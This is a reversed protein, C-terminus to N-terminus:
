RNILYEPSSMLLYIALQARFELDEQDNAPFKKLAEIIIQTSNESLRGQALILNLRDMLMHLNDDSALAIEDVIDIRAVEDSYTSDVEGSYLDYADVLREEMIFRYLGNIYGVITQADTIQFVPAVKNAEEIKGIPQYDQQFFNFVTPASLPKQGTFDYIYRMDNRYNGSPTSADFAKNLQVYRIFPERLSGYNYDSASQCAKAVPDLLIAKVVSALDGRVGQGNDAFVQAVRQVYAPEPNATVLRQILFKSVYPPVNPHAYLNDLADAIDAHGDVPNRDPVVYGNILYKPGPEHEDNYMKMPVIYSSDNSVGRGFRDRNGYGFGTFVKSLEVIDYNEYTPIPTGISDYQMTGDMNLMTTGITFLQMVERAYNEDPFRNLTTDTKPNNVLTLYAGMSAQYTVEQLIDRYNGFAHHLLIDYYDALAYSNGGFNSQDSIVILESLALAVRQRLVDASTMHYHWWAYHWFRKSQNATPNNTEARVFDHYFKVRNSITFPIPEALQQDVWDEIGMQTVLDIDEYNFGLTAQTLFRSAANKNPLYGDQDLTQGGDGSGSNSVTAGMSQGFGIVITDPQAQGLLMSAIFLLTYTLILRQMIRRKITPFLDVALTSQPSLWKISM